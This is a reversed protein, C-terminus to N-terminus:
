LKNDGHDGVVGEVGEGVSETSKGHAGDDYEV